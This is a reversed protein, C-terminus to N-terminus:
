HYFISYNKNTSVSFLGHQQIVGKEGELLSLLSYETHLLMKGQREDRALKENSTNKNLMLIQFFCFNEFPIAIRTFNSNSNNSCVKLQVFENTNEKKALYQVISDVPSQGLKLGIIYPGARRFERRNVIQGFLPCVIRTPSEIKEHKDNSDDSINVANFSASKDNRHDSSDTSENESLISNSQEEDSTVANTDASFPETAAATATLSEIKYKKVIADIEDFKRKNSSETIAMTENDSPIENTLLSM